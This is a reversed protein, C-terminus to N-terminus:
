RGGQRGAPAPTNPAPADETTIRVPQGPRAFQLGDVIVREGATLGSLIVWSGGRLEGVSVPRNEVVEKAGVVMVSAGGPTVTVARQPILLAQPRVGAEIRARVFQGSLLARDPNPFEARLAATGTAEDIRLDLFNLRGPRSYVSGDELVLQVTVRDLAPVKLTGSEIERRVTLLDSSSQSFNVYIPDLQEITTLLTASSGSVLAGETVEARGARGAIPAKVTTYSLDLEATEVQARAQAVDAEATRLRAVATDYEQQSIAQQAVLGEYRKVDQAANAHTAEARALTAQVASLEARLERPDIAFLAQGARVDTGEEYLRRQVIGDVRARVEATRVAQLRGPVEVTHTIAEPSVAIVRVEPPPPAQPQPADPACGVLLLACLAAATAIGGHRFPTLAIDGSKTTMYM